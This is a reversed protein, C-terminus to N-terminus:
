HILEPNRELLNKRREPISRFVNLEDFEFVETEGFSITKKEAQTKQEMKNFIQKLAAEAGVLNLGTEELFQEVHLRDSSKTLIDSFNHDGRIRIFEVILRGTEALEQVYVLRM